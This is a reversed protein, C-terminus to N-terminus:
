LDAKCDMMNSWILLIVMHKDKQYWFPTQCFEVDVRLLCEIFVVRCISKEGRLGPSPILTKVSLQLGLEKIFNKIKLGSQPQVQLGGTEAKQLIIRMHWCVQSSLYERSMVIYGHGLEM